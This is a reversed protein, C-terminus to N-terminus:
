QQKFILISRYPIETCDYLSFYKVGTVRPMGMVGAPPMVSYTISYAPTTTTTLATREPENTFHMHHLTDIVLAVGWITDQRNKPPSTQMLVSTGSWQISQASVPLALLIVVVLRFLIASLQSSQVATFSRFSKKRCENETLGIAELVAPTLVYRFLRITNVRGTYDNCKYREALWKKTIITPVENEPEGVRNRIQHDAPTNEKFTAQNSM